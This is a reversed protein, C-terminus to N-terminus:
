DTNSEAAAGEVAAEAGQDQTPQNAVPSEVGLVRAVNDAAQQVEPKQLQRELYALMARSQPREHATSVITDEWHHM